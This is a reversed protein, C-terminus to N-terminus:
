STMRDLCRVIDLNIWVELGHDFGVGFGETM